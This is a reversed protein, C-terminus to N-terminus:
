WCRGLRAIALKAFTTIGSPTTHDTANLILDHPAAVAPKQSPLLEYSRVYQRAPDAMVQSPCIPLMNIDARRNPAQALPQADVHECRLVQGHRRTGGVLRALLRSEKGVGIKGFSLSNTRLM